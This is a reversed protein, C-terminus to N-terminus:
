EKIEEHFKAYDNAWCTSQKNLPEPLQLLDVSHNPVKTYVISFPSKGTTGNVMSNTTFELQLLVIDM